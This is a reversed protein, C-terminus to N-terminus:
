PIDTKELAPAYTHEEASNKVLLLLDLVPKACLGHVSTSGVHEISVHISSVMQVFEPTLLKAPSVIFDFDRM